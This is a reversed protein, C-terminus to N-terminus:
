AEKLWGPPCPERGQQLRRVRHGRLLRGHVNMIHQDVEVDNPKGPLIPAKSPRVAHGNQQAKDIRDTLPGSRIICVVPFM